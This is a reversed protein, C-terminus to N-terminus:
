DPVSGGVLYKHCARGPDGVAHLDLHPTEYVSPALIEAGYQGAIDSIRKSAPSQPDFVITKLEARLASLARGAKDGCDLAARFSSAPADQAAQSVMEKFVLAGITCAAYRASLLLVNVQRDAAAQLAAIAQEKNHIVIVPDGDM